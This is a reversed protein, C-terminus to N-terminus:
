NYLVKNIAGATFNIVAARVWVFNGSFNAFSTGTIAANANGTIQSSTLNFWDSETPTTALSAQFGITGQFNTLQYSVTHLGDTYGYYGDGKFADSYWASSNGNYNGNASGHSTNSIVVTPVISM